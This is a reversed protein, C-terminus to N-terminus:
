DWTQDLLELQLKDQVHCWRPDCHCWTWQCRYPDSLVFKIRVVPPMLMNGIWNLKQRFRVTMSSWTQFPFVQDLFELGVMRRFIPWYQQFTIYPRSMLLDALLLLTSLDVAESLDLRGTWCESFILFHKMPINWHCENIRFKLLLQPLSIGLWTESDLLFKHGPNHLQIHVQLPFLIVISAIYTHCYPVNASVFEYSLKSKLRNSPWETGAAATGTWQRLRHQLVISCCLAAQSRMIMVKSPINLYM